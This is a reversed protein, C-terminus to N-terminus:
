FEADVRAPAVSTIMTRGDPYEERHFWEGSDPSRYINKSALLNIEDRDRICM